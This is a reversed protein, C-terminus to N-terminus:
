IKEPNPVDAVPPSKPPAAAAAGAVPPRKPLWGACCVPPKNEPPLVDNPPAPAIAPWLPDTTFNTAGAPFSVTVFDPTVWFM